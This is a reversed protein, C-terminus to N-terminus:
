KLLAELAAEMSREGKLYPTWEAEIRQRSFLGREWVGASDAYPRHGPIERAVAYGATYFILSHSLTRPVPVIVRKAVGALVAQFDDDWQHMAEHFITELGHSGGTESNLSGMVILGGDTSYAGAWNAYACMQVIRGDAPWPHNWAKSLFDAVPRGHARLMAQLERIRVENARDHRPWWVKRYIPSVSELVRRLEAPVDLRNAALTRTIAVLDRDFVADQRSLTHQYYTIAADWALLDAKDLADLGEVDEAAHRVAERKSDPTSSRARGLVYLFHHLNPLFESHFTFLTDQAPACTVLVLALPLIRRM